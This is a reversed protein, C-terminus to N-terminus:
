RITYQSNLSLVHGRWTNHNGIVFADNAEIEGFHKSAGSVFNDGTNTVTVSQAVSVNTVRVSGFALNDTSTIAAPAAASNIGTGKLAVAPDIKGTEAYGATHCDHCGSTIAVQSGRAVSVEGAVSAHASVAVAGLAMAGCMWLKM